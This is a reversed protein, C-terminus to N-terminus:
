KIEPKDSKIRELRRMLESFAIEQTHSVINVTPPLFSGVVLYEEEGRTEVGRLTLRDNRLIAKFGLKSYRFSDFFGALGGYLAGANQGSSLVTIKNLAEVSIRQETGRDVSHLDARFEAPQGATIVLDEITGELVGSIRGFAFTQSLQELQIDALAANLKISALTSFPNELELKSMRVQGGFIEAEIEGNTKLTNGISQVEPISGTLTGGFRPWKLAQTLQQLELQKGELSFSLQKPENIVDPWSLNAVSVEGGFLKFRLPEHFRLANNRLSLTTKIPGLFESGFRAGDMSLQGVRPEGGSINKSGSWHVQFPLNLALPGIQWNWSKVRIEGMKLALEGEAALDDVGGRLETKFTVRGGLALQDLLPFQRNYTERLFFDFFGGPSLDASRAQLRLQPVASVHDISGSMAVAGIDILKLDCRRCDLRDTKSFYDTDFVLEPKRAKLDGFFKGWLLEGADLNIKGAVNLSDDGSRAAVEFAGGLSLNEGVKASDPSNFKGGATEFRGHIKWPENAKLDSSASAQLRAAALQWRNDGGYNLNAAAFTAEKVQLGPSAWEFPVTLNASAVKINDGRIQLGEGRAIGKVRPTNWVGSVQADIQGRGSYTWRNLPAPLLAQFIELPADRWALSAKSITPQPVFVIEGEGVGSGIPSLLRLLKFKLRKEPIAFGGSFNIGTAGSPLKLEAPVLAQPLSQLTLQGTFEAATFERDIEARGAFAGSFKANGIGFNEFKSEIDAEAAQKDPRHFKTKLRLMEPAAGATKQTAFLRLTKKPRIVIEAELDSLQGVLRLTMTGDLQPIDANLSMGAQEGLNFNQADLNISPLVYIVSEGRKLVVTGSRVKLNRLAIEGTTKDAPESMEKVDLQLMPEEFNLRRITKSFLDLPTITATLRRSKLLFKGPKAIEVGNARIGMPPLLRLSAVRVEAGSRQSLETQLWVRVRDSQLVFFLTIYAGAILVFVFFALKLGVRSFVTM